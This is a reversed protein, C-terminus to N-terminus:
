NSMQFKFDAILVTRNIKWFFQFLRKTVALHILNHVNEIEFKERQNTMIGRDRNPFSHGICEPRIM